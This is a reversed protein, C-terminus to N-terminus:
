SYIMFISVSVGKCISVYVGKFREKNVILNTREYDCVGFCIDVM